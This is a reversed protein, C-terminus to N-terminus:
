ELPPYYPRLRTEYPGQLGPAANSPIYNMGGGYGATPAVSGGGGGGGGFMGGAGGIAGGGYLSAYIQAADKVTNWLSTGAEGFRDAVNKKKHYGYIGAREADAMSRAVDGAGRTLDLSAQLPVLPALDLARYGQQIQPIYGAAIQEDTIGAERLQNYLNPLAGYVQRAVDYYRGSAIRANRLREATSDVASPNLGRARRTLIDQNVDFRSLPNVVNPDIFGFLTNGTQQLLQQPDSALRRGLLNRLVGEQEGQLARQRETGQAYGARFEPLDSRLASLTERGLGSLQGLVPRTLSFYKPKPAADSGGFAGIVGGLGGAQGNAM